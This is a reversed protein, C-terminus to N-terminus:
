PRPTPAAAPPAELVDPVPQGNDGIVHFGPNITVSTKMKRYDSFTIHANGDFGKFLLIRGDAHADVTHTFWIEGNVRTYDLSFHSGKKINALLGGGVHFNERLEGDLRATAADEEDIWIHGNLQRMIEESMNSTKAKPNGAYDFIITPRGNIIERRPESLTTVKLLMAFRPPPAPSSEDKETKAKIKAIQKDVRDQEKKEEEPSLLKGDHSVHQHIEHRDVFFVRFEDSHTGKKNGHSDFDDKVVTEKCLYNKQIERWADSHTKALEVLKALDPLPKKAAPPPAPAPTTTPEQACLRLSLAVAAFIALRSLSPPLM